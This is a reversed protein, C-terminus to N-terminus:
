SGYCILACAPRPRGYPSRATHRFGYSASSPVVIRLLRCPVAALVPYKVRTGPLRAALASQCDLVFVARGTWHCSAAAAAVASAAAHFGLLEQKFPAQDEDGNGAARVAEGPSLAIALAGVTRTESDHTALYIVSHSGMLGRLDEVVSDHFDSLDISPPAPPQEPCRAALLREEGRDVPLRLGQRLHQTHPCVWTLHPRSPHLRDCM